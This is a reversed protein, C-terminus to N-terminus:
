QVYGEMREWSVGFIEWLNTSISNQNRLIVNSKFHVTTKKVKIQIYKPIIVYTIYRYVRDNMNVQTPPFSEVYTRYNLKFHLVM